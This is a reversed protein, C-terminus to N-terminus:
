KLWWYKSESRVFEEIAEPLDSLPDLSEAYEETWHVVYQIDTKKADPFNSQATQTEIAKVFERLRAAAEWNEV